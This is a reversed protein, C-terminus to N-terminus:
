VGLKLEKLQLEEEINTPQGQALPEDVIKPVSALSQGSSM